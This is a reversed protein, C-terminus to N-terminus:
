GLKSAIFGTYTGSADPFTTRIKWVCCSPVVVRVGAGLRGHALLVFQTYAAHRMARNDGADPVASVEGRFRNALRLVM